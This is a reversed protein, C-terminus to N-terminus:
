CHKDVLSSILVKDYSKKEGLFIGLVYKLISPYSKSGHVNTVSGLVKNGTMATKDSRFVKWNKKEQDLTFYWKTDHTM